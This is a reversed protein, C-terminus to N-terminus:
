SKKVSGPKTFADAWRPNNTIMTEYEKQRRLLKAEKKKQKM